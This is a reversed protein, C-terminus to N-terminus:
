DQNRRGAQMSIWTPYNWPRISGSTCWSIKKLFESAPSERAAEDPHHHYPRPPIHHQASWSNPDRHAWETAPPSDRQQREKLPLIRGDDIWAKRLKRSTQNNNSEQASARFSPSFRRVYLLLPPSHEVQLHHIHRWDPMSLRLHVVRYIMVDEAHTHLLSAQVRV